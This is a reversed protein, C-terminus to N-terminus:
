GCRCICSQTISIILHIISIIILTMPIGYIPFESKSLMIKWIPAIEKDFRKTSLEYMYDWNNNLRAKVVWEYLKVYLRELRLYFCDLYWFIGTVLFLFSLLWLLDCEDFLIVLLVSIIALYWGKLMFSNSAMRNICGQIMDLEKHLIENNQNMDM